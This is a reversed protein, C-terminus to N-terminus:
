KTKKNAKNNIETQSLFSNDGFTDFDRRKGELSGKATRQPEKNRNEKQEEQHFTRLSVIQSTNDLPISLFWSHFHCFPALFL